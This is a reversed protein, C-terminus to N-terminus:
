LVIFFLFFLGSRRSIFLYQGKQLFCVTWVSVLYNSPSLVIASSFFTLFSWPLHNRSILLSSFFTTQGSPLVVALFVPVTSSHETATPAQMQIKSPTATSSILVRM